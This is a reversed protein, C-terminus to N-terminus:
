ESKSALYQALADDVLMYAPRGELAAQARVKRWQEPEVEIQAPRFVKPEHAVNLENAM